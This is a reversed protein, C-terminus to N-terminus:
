LRFKHHSETTSSVTSVKKSVSTLFVCDGFTGRFVWDGEFQYLDASIRTGSFLNVHYVVTSNFYESLLPSSSTPSWMISTSSIGQSLELTFLKHESLIKSYYRNACFHQVGNALQTAVLSKAIIELDQFKLPSRLIKLAEIKNQFIWIIKRKSILFVEDLIKRKKNNQSQLAEMEGM